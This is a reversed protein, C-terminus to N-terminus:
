RNTRRSRCAARHARRLRDGAVSAGDQREGAHRHRPRQRLRDRGREHGRRCPTAAARRHDGLRRAELPHPPFRRGERRLRAHSGLIEAGRARAADVELVLAASGEAIVFGDRDKSFPKAAKKPIDNHTSLASLLSFRILAEATASCDTGISLARKANAAASRRSASSSRPPARPAPPPCRSRRARPASATPLSRPSM